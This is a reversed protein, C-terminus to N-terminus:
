KVIFDINIPFFDNFYGMPEYEGISNFKDISKNFSYIGKDLVEQCLEIYQDKERIEKVEWLMNMCHYAQIIVSQYKMHRERERKDTRYEDVRIEFMYVSCLFAKLAQKLRLSECELSRIQAQTIFFYEQEIVEEYLKDREARVNDLKEQWREEKENQENLKMEREENLEQLDYKSLPRNRHQSLTTKLEIWLKYRNQEQKTMGKMQEEQEEKSIVFPEVVPKNIKKQYEAEILERQQNVDELWQLYRQEENTLDKALRERENLRWEVSKFYAQEKEEPYDIRHM